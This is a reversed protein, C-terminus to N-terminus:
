SLACRTLGAIYCWGRFPTALLSWTPWASDCDALVADVDCGAAHAPTPLGVLVAVAVIALRYKM